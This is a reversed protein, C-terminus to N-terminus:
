AVAIDTTRTTPGVFAEIYRVVLATGEEHSVYPPTAPDYMADTLDSVLVASFGLSTLALLGFSRKLVCLNTHVGTMLVTDRGTMRLYAALEGGDDTILDTEQDISIADHQRSWVPTGPPFQDDTDSGGGDADIPLPPVEVTLPPRPGALGAARKRAPATQYAQMTGSPAHVVLAGADRAWRCFTDIEPALEAVRATAGESWHRDWVDCVVVATAKAGFTKQEEEAEWIRRGGPGAALRRRRLTAVFTRNNPGTV